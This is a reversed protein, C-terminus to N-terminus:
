REFMAEAWAISFSKLFPVFLTTREWREFSFLVGPKAYSVTLVIKSAFPTTIPSLKKM